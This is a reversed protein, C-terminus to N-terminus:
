KRETTSKNPQSRLLNLTISSAVPKSQMSKRAEELISDANIGETIVTRKHNEIIPRDMQVRTKTTRRNEGKRAQYILNQLCKLNMEEFGQTNLMTAIDALHVGAHQAHEIEPLLERIRAVKSKKVTPSSVLERIADIFQENM